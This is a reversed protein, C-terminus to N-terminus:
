PANALVWQPASAGHVCRVHLIWAAPTGAPCQRDSHRSQRHVHLGYRYLGYTCVTAAVLNGAFVFHEPDVAWGHEALLWRAVAAWLEPPQITYGFTAHKARDVIAAHIAPDIPLDMDAVWMPLVGAPCFTHKVTHHPTRDVQTRAHPRAPPRAGHTRAICVAAAVAAPRPAHRVCQHVEQQFAAFEDTGASMESSMEHQLVRFFPKM